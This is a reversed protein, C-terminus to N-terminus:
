ACIEELEGTSDVFTDVPTDLRNLMTQFLNSLPVDNGYKLYQGHKLSLRDGGALILLGGAIPLWVLASLLPFESM